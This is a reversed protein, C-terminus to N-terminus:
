ICRGPLPQVFDKDMRTLLPTFRLRLAIDSTKKRTKIGNSVPRKRPARNRGFETDAATEAPIFVMEDAPFQQVIARYPDDRHQMLAHVPKGADLRFKTLAKNDCRKKAFVPEWM